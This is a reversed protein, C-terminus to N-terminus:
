FGVAVGLSVHPEGSDYPSLDDQLVDFLLELYASARNSIPQVFGGGLLLFPVWERSTEGRLVAVEYNVYRYEAHTYFRPGVRYRAFVSGGYSSSSGGDHYNVYEYGVEAGISAKPTLKYAAMPFIGIGTAGFLILSISGGYYVRSEPPVAATDAAPPTAGAPQPEQASLRGATGALLMLLCTVRQLARRM